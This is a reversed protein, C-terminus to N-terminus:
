NINKLIMLYKKYSDRKQEKSFLDIKKVYHLYIKELLIKCLYYKVINKFDDDCYKLNEKMIKNKLNNYKKMNIKYGIIYNKIIVVAFDYLYTSVCTEDFDIVYYDNNGYIINYRSLDGHNLYKDNLLEVNKINNYIDLVYLADDKLEECLEVNKNLYKYYIDCKEKLTNKHKTERKIAILKSFDIKYKKIKSPEIYNFINYSINNLTIVKENLPRCVKINNKKYVDYLEESLKFDYDYNYKKIIYKNNKTIVKYVLNAVGGNMKKFSIIEEDTVMSLVKKLEMIISYDTITKSYIKLIDEVVKKSCYVKNVREINKVNIYNNDCIKYKEIIKKTLDHYDGTNYISSTDNLMEVMGSNSSGVIQLGTNMAELVVYPFNDFLSPFVGVKAENLYKNLDYNAIQGM